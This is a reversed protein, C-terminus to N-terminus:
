NDHLSDVASTHWSRDVGVTATPYTNGTDNLQPCPSFRFPEDFKLLFSLPIDASYVWINEYSCTIVTAKIPIGPSESRQGRQLAILTTAIYPRPDWDSYTAARYHGPDWYLEQQKDHVPM